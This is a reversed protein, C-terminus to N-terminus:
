KIYGAFTAEGSLLVPFGFAAFAGLAAAVSWVDLSPRRSVRAATAAYGAAACGVVAPTALEATRATATALQAVVVVVAYGAPAVLAPPLEVGAVWGLLLGSGIAIALLVLPFVLWSTVVAM